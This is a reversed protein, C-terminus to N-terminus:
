VPGVVGGPGYALTAPPTADGWKIIIRGNGGFGGLGSNSGNNNNRRGGGGGGGPSYGPFGDGNVAIYGDGGNGGYCSAIAGRYDNASPTVGIEGPEAGAGGGGGSVNDIGTAGNGGSAKLDGISSAASGGTSGIKVNNATSNGGKALVTTNNLFWSDGGAATTTAGAGVTVTYTTGPTVAISKSAFAGGGGGGGVNIGNQSLCSGGKGGGGWADITVQYVGAPVTFTGTTNYTQPSTQAYNISIAILCIVILIKRELNLLTKKM